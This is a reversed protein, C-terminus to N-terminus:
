CGVAGFDTTVFLDGERRFVQRAHETGSLTVVFSKGKVLPRIAGSVGTAPLHEAASATYATATTVEASKVPKDARLSILEAKVSSCAGEHTARRTILTPGDELDTRLAWPLVRGYAGVGGIDPWHGLRRFGAPTRKLYDVGLAGGCRRCGDPIEKRSVLAVVGPGVDILAQPTYVVHDDSDDITALPAPKGFAAEFAHHLADRPPPPATAKPQCGAALVVAATVRVISTKWDSV